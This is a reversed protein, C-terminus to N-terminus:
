QAGGVQALIRETERYYGEPTIRGDVLKQLLGDMVTKIRKYKAAERLGLYYESAAEKETGIPYPQLGAPIEVGVINVSERKAPQGYEDQYYPLNTTLWPIASEIQEKFNSPRRYVPDLVTGMWRLFGSLPIYREAAFGLARQIDMDIDGSLARFYSNLNGLFSQSNIFRILGSFVKITKQMDSDTLAGKQDIVADRILAPVALALAFPGFYFMPVWKDGVKVAFARRGSAYFWKKGEEDDPPLATTKGELALGVGVATALVGGVARGIERAPDRAGIGSALGAPSRQILEKTANLSTRLFPLVLGGFVPIRRVDRGFQGLTQDIFTLMRGQGSYNHTDIDARLLEREAEKLARNRAVNKELGQKMYVATLADAIQTRFFVDMAELARSGVTIVDAAQAGATGLGLKESLVKRLAGSSTALDPQGVPKRQAMVDLAAQYARPLSEILHAYYDLAMGPTYRISGKAGAMQAIPAGLGIDAPLILYTKLANWWANRLQTVIGSLMNGYAYEDLADLWLRGADVTRALEQGGVIHLERFTRLIRGAYTGATALSGIEVATKQALTNYEATGAKGAREMEKLDSLHTRISSALARIKAAVAVTVDRNLQELDGQVQEIQDGSLLEQAMAEVEKITMPDGKHKEWLAEAQKYADGLLKKAQRVTVVGGSASLNLLKDKEAKWHINLIESPTPTQPENAVATKVSEQGATERHLERWFKQSQDFIERGVLRIGPGFQGEMVKVWDDYSRAGAIFEGAGVAVVDPHSAIFDKATVAPSPVAVFGRQKRINRIAEKKIAEGKEAVQEKVVKKVEPPTGELFDNDTMAEMKMFKRVSNVFPLASEGPKMYVEAGNELTFRVRGDPMETVAEPNLMKSAKRVESVRKAFDEVKEGPRLFFWGGNATDEYRVAGPVEVEPRPLGPGAIPVLGSVPPKAPAQVQPAVTQPAGTPKNFEPPPQKIVKEAKAPKPPPEVKEANVPTEVTTDPLWKVSQKDFFAPMVLGVLNDGSYIGVPKGGKEGKLTMDPIIKQLYDFHSKRIAILEGGPTQFVYMMDKGPILGIPKGLPEPSVANFSGWVQSSSPIKGEQVIGKDRLARPAYEPKLMWYGNTYEGGTTILVKENKGIFRELSARPTMVNRIDEETATNQVEPKKKEVASAPEMAEVKQINPQPEQAQEQAAKEAEAQKRAEVRALLESQAMPPAVPRVGAVEVDAEGLDAFPSPLLPREIPAPTVITAGEPVTVPEGEPLAPRPVYVGPGPKSFPLAQRQEPEPTVIPGRPLEPVKKEEGAELVRKSAEPRLADIVKARLADYQEQTFQKDIGMGKLITDVVDEIPKGQRVANLAENFVRKQVTDFVLRRQKEAKEAEAKLREAAQQKVKDPIDLMMTKLIPTLLAFATGGRLIDRISKEEGGIQNIAEAEAGTLFAGSMEPLLAQIVQPTATKVLDVTAKPLVSAVKASIQRVLGGQVGVLAPILAWEVASKAIKGASPEEGMIGERLAESAGGVVAPATVGLVPAALGTALIRPLLTVAEGSLGSVFAGAEGAKSKGLAELAGGVLPIDKGYKALEEGSQIPSTLGTLAEGIYRRLGTAGKPTEAEAQHLRPETINQRIFQATSQEEADLMDTTVGHESMFKVFDPDGRLRKLLALYTVPSLEM